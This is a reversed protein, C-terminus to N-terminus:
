SEFPCFEVECIGSSVYRTIVGVLSNSDSTLTLTEDDSAYVSDGVNSVAVGSLEVELRYRGARVPINLDGDDGDTNDVAERAHGAFLEGAVLAHGYGEEGSTESVSIMSNKYSVSDAAAPIANDGGMLSLIVDKELAM